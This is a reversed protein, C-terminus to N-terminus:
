STSCSSSTHQRIPPSIGSLSARLRSSVIWKTVMWTSILVGGATTRAGSQGASPWLSSGQLHPPGEIGLLDLITPLLDVHQALADVRQGAGVQGPFKVILPVALQEQYLTSGHGWGGHEFFEEGHDSVALIATSDYLGNNKLWAVLQGFHHDTFAVEADYLAGLESSIAAAEHDTLRREFLQRPAVLDPYQRTQIYQERFPSRPTYPDHPDVAHLYLFFPRETDRSELWAFAQENLTDSLVHVETTRRERLHVYTEFGHDFGFNPSVNGNTVFGATQYGSASLIAAMTLAESSLENTRGNVGHSRPHVGTFISAVSARTWSSQAISNTFLVGDDALADLHPSTNLSYGYAGLRDRRLTDILYILVNPRKQDAHVIAPSEPAQSPAPATQSVLAPGSLALGGDLVDNSGSYATFSVRVLQGSASPPIAIPSPTRWSSPTVQVISQTDTADDTFGVELYAGESVNGWTTLRDLRLTAGVPVHTDYEIGTNFPLELVGDREGHRPSTSGM